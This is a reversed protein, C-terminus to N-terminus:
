AGYSGRRGPQERRLFDKEDQAFLERNPSLSSLVGLSPEPRSPLRDTEPRPVPKHPVRPVVNVKQM